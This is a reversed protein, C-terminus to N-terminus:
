NQKKTLDFDYLDIFQSVLSSHSVTAINKFHCYLETNCHFKVPSVPNGLLFTATASSYCCAVAVNKPVSQLYSLSAKM